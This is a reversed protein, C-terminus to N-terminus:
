EYVEKRHAIRMVEVTVEKDNISYIVRYDGIRIRWFHKYGILKKSGAPRPSEALIEIKTMVRAAIVNPLALLEKKASVSFTVNYM